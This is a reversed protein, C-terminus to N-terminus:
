LRDEARFENIAGLLGTREICELLKFERLAQRRDGALWAHPGCHVLWGGEPVLKLRPRTLPLVLSNFTDANSTLDIMTGPEKLEADLECSAGPM